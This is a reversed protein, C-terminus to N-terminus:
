PEFSNLADPNLIRPSGAGGFTSLITEACMRDLRETAEVTYSGLHPTALVNNLTLLPNREPPEKSFVDLAAGATRNAKLHEYLADEDVIGGRATNILYATKKMRRLERTGIMNKTQEILPVHLTVIDSESLLKDLTVYSIRDEKVLNSVQIVDYALIRPGFGRLRKIVEAGIRGTGIVGVTMQGLERGLHRNWNGAKTAYNSECLNRLLVLMVGIAMDAVAATSAGAANAVVIGLDTAADVDIRDVGVGHMMVMRLTNSAKLVNETIPEPGCIIAHPNERAVIGCMKAEDLPREEPSVRKVEFEGNVLITEGVPVITGFSRSSVLVVRM